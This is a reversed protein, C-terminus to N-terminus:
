SILADPLRGMPYPQSSRSAAPDFSRVLREAKERHSVDHDIVVFAGAESHEPKGFMGAATAAESIKRAAGIDPVAFVTRPM